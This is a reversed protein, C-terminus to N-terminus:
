YKEERERRIEYKKEKKKAYKKYDERQRGNQYKKSREKGVKM